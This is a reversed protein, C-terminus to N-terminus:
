GVKDLHHRHREKHHRWERDLIDGIVVVEGTFRDLHHFMFELEKDSSHAPTYANPTTTDGPYSGDPHRFLDIGAIVLRKPQLAVAMAIMAAGNTPRHSGWDFDTLYPGLREMSFYRLRHRVAWPGKMALLLMEGTQHQLGFIPKKLAKMSSYGGTFVVDADTLVSRNMWSHNVRFLAEYDVDQLDPHESSPGNGLCLITQPSGLDEFLEREDDYRQVFPRLQAARKPHDLQRHLWRGFMRRLPRDRRNIWKRNKGLLPILREMVADAAAPDCQGSASPILTVHDDLPKDRATECDVALRLDSSTEPSSSLALHAQGRGSLLVTSISKVKICKFFTAHPYAEQELLIVARVRLQRLYLFSLSAIAFPIPESRIKPFSRKLWDAVKPDGTGLITELRLDSQALKELLPAIAEFAAQDSGYFFLSPAVSRPLVGVQSLTKSSM